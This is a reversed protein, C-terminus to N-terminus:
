KEQLLDSVPAAAAPSQPSERLVHKLSSAAMSFKYFTGALDPVADLAQDVRHDIAHEALPRLPAIDLISGLVSAMKGGQDRVGEPAGYCGICPMNVTPCRAGCGDRTAVGMCLIGQELLCEADNPIIQWTRHLAPICKDTRTRKCEQCVTSNGAGLVSGRPPLPSGSILVDVLERVRHAEPPCGPMSYDVEVIDALRRVQPLLEPLHLVGEPVPTERQPRVQDPNDLSPGPGYVAELLEERTSLNALAPICGESACSGFAILVKSKSRLLHAMEENESTRIAGNFLCLDISADAMAVVDSVKTDLLCPCFVFDMAEALDILKENVHTLAIECGGCSGAWYMALKPKGSM